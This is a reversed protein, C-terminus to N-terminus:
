VKKLVSKIWRLLQSIKTYVDPRVPNDCTDKDGFSVIGVATNNCVLPGGSDGKCTGGPNIACVMRPTLFKWLKKCKDKNIIGVQTELLRNSIEKHTGKRGWGAVSCVTNPKIDDAKVPISIWNVTPSKKATERLKLLMIDYDFNNVGKYWPHVYYTEVQMRISGDKPDSLDHAGLVATLISIRNWCHAATMVFRKSVLFGGCIHIGYRQISVMYPRSHPKAETGNVIGVKVSASQSLYPLLAALLFLSILTMTSYPSLTNEDLPREYKVLEFLVFRIVRFKQQNMLSQRPIDGKNFAPQVKTIVSKIWPLLESVKTYVDPRVPNDCTDKAGFSVIGVATSNCVLPGGSDGWCTGGPNMACVMRPTLSRWLKNCKDKDIIGVQTELLRSSLPKHTGKQGWGAVSCVTNAKIDDAREPISIWNVTPSKKATERLKLLMIDYDFGKEAHYQPHVHYTKVPIRISGDKPDSLDHAGLVATLVMKRDWCHAATMVFHQSVLFGGCIHGGNTQISVMYPRSHPKAEKGNVIGVKFSASHSLYPLLAALLLLSILTM